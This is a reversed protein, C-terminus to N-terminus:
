KVAALWFYGKGRAHARSVVIKERGSLIGILIYLTDKDIYRIQYEKELNGIYDILDDITIWQLTEITISDVMPLHEFLETALENLNEQSYVM